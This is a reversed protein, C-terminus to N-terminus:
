RVQLPVTVVRGFASRVTATPNASPGAGTTEVSLRWRGAATLTATGLNLPGATTSVSVTITNGNARSTQGSLDWRFRNGTRRTVTATAVTLNEAVAPPPTVAVTVTAPTASVAGLSDRAQYTFTANFATTVTAPPTYTVTTGDTSVTGGGTVASLNVVSLPVNGEPDTDNNLVAITVPATSAAATDNNATPARNAAVTVTVTAPTSQGGRADQVRYTFTEVLPAGNVVTPPTYVVSNGSRTISGRAPAPALASLDILTLPTDNDPDSDNALPNITVPVGATTSASDAVALPLQNAGVVPASGVVTVMETDSGGAASKVTVSAPPQELNTVTLTQLTGSKSLRGYGDAAMDPVVVEDSSRAEITLTRNAWSFRATGIKVVDTLRSSLATPRTTGNPATATVVLFPPLAQQPPNNAFFYGNNNSTLNFLCPSPTTGPVLALTERYCVNTSANAPPTKAFVSIRTGASTRNYTSREVEVQTPARTDAVKGSLTFLNTQLTGAPGQIRVFNVGNLGGTVQEPLNPNGIFTETEGTEPNTATIPGGVRTLFPGVDGTMAGTFVGPAGIGIDRTMNIARRGPTTVVVTDVGYPHTITYTGAVPVSARIRIRSFSVQDGEQPLEQGFAAEIGAVYADLSYGAVAGAPITTEALFWFLESPWNAPFILPQTDDFVGPEPILTCLYNGPGGLVAKSRCLELQLDNNDQYWLPFGGTAGTYPGPDVAKLVAQATGTLAFLGLATVAIGLQKNM